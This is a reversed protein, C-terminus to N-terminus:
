AALKQTTSVCAQYGSKDDLSSIEENVEVQM